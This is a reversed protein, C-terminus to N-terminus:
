ASPVTGATLMGVAQPALVCLSQGHRLLCGFTSGVEEEDGTRGWRM